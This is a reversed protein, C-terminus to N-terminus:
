AAEKAPARLKAAFERLEVALRRNYVRVEDDMALSGILDSEAARAEIEEIRRQTDSM